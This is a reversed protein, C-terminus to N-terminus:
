IKDELKLRKWQLLFNTTKSHTNQCSALPSAEQRASIAEMLVLTWGAHSMETRHMDFLHNDPGENFDPSNVLAIKKFAWEDVSVRRYTLEAETERYDFEM